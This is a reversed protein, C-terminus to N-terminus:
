FFDEKWESFGGKIDGKEILEKWGEDDMKSIYVYGSGSICNLDYVGAPIDKM